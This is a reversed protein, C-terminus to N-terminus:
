WLQRLHKALAPDRILGSQKIAELSSRAAPDLKSYIRSLPIPKLDRPAEVRIIRGGKGPIAEDRLFRAPPYVQHEPSTDDIQIIEGSNNRIAAPPVTTWEFWSLAFKTSDAISALALSRTKREMTEAKDSAARSFRAIWLPLHSPEGSRPPERNEWAPRRYYQTFQEVLEPGVRVGRLSLVFNSVDIVAQPDTIRVAAETLREASNASANCSGVFAVNGFSFVKAHLNEHSHVEVGQELYHRIASPNTLGRKLASRSFDCVLISGAQLPLLRPADTGVYAVAVHCRTLRAQRAIHKWIDTSLFTIQNPPM